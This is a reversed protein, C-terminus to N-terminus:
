LNLVGIYKNFAYVIPNESEKLEIATVKDQMVEKRLINKDIWERIETNVCYIIVTTIIALLLIAVIIAIAITKPNNKEKIIEKWDIKM